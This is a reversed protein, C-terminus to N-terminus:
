CSLLTMCQGAIMSTAFILATRSVILINELLPWRLLQLLIFTQCHYCAALTGTGLPRPQRKM